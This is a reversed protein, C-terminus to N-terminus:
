RVTFTTTGHGDGVTAEAIYPGPPLAALRIEARARGEAAITDVWQRNGKSDTVQFRVPTGDPIFQRQAGLLPGTALIIARNAADVTATLTFGGVVPGPAFSIELPASEVGYITARIAVTIAGRPAQFPAEAIGRITYAPIARREGGPFDAVFSVLTGDPLLNGFRDKLPVTRLTVLSRGDAPVDAPDATLTFPTPWGPVELLSSEPGHTAGIGEGVQASITTRGAVTGSYIRGWALLHRVALGQIEVRGDPHTARLGVPTGEAVPNGFQDFPVVVAMSWHAGDAVIARAGVLPTIPEVAAGPLLTLAAEGRAAGSFAILSVTGSRRTEEAPITFRAMGGALNARYMRQGYSGITLLSIPTADPAAVPGVQVEVATGVSATAPAVIPLTGTITVAPVDVEGRVCSALLATVWFLALLSLARGRRHASSVRSVPASM